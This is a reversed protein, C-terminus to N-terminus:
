PITGIYETGTYAQQELSGWVLQSRQSVGSLADIGVFGPVSTVNTVFQMDDEAFSRSVAGANGDGNLLLYESIPFQQDAGLGIGVEASAVASDACVASMAWGKIRVGFGLATAPFMAVSVGAASVAAETFFWFNQAASGASAPVGTANWTDNVDKIRYIINYDCPPPNGALNASAQIYVGSGAPGQIKCDGILYDPAFVPSAGRAYTRMVMNGNAAFTGTTGDWFGLRIDDAAANFNHGTCTIGLIEVFKGAQAAVIAKSTAAATGGGAVTNTSAVNPLRGSIEKTQCAETLSMLRYKVFCSVNNVASNASAHAALTQGPHVVLNGKTRWVKRRTTTQNAIGPFHFPLTIGNVRLNGTLNTAADNSLCAFIVEDILAVQNAETTLGAASGASTGLGLYGTRLSRSNKAHARDWKSRTREQMTYTM